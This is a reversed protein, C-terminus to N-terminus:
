GDQAGHAMDAMAQAEALIAALQAEANDDDDDDDDSDGDDYDLALYVQDDDSDGDSDSDSDDGDDSDGDADAAADDFGAADDDDDADPDPAEDLHPLLDRYGAAAIRDRGGPARAAASLIGLVSTDARDAGFFWRDDDAPRLARAHRECKLLVPM